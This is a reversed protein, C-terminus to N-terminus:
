KKMLEAVISDAINVCERAICNATITKNSIHYPKTHSNEVIKIAAPIAAIAADVRIQEWNLTAKQLTYITEHLDSSGCGTCKQLKYSNDLVRFYRGCKNCKIVKM